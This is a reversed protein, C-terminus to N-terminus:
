VWGGAESLIVLSHSSGVARPDRDSV